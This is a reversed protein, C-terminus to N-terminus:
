SAKFVALTDAFTAVNDEYVVVDSGKSTVMSIAAVIDLGYVEVKGLPAAGDDLGFIRAQCRPANERVSCTKSWNNFFSYFGAGYVKVNDSGVVRLAWAMRCPAALGTEGVTLNTNGPAAACDVDFDPDGIAANVTTYPAPAPPNPQYYPTETQAHGLWIDRTNLLQYQYVSFHESGHGVLWIRGTESEILMGRGAFVHIQTSNLDEIDHDAVWLWNNEMYINGAAKTVHVAMYAAACKPDPETIEVDPTKLCQEVMLDSGAFGGVRAHVDWMGSPEDESKLNFEILVAGATGGRTSVLMDSWEVRGVTEGERGVQIVPKPNEMDSFLAGTALIVSSLAEGVIRTNPPIYM